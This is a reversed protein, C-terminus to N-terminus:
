MGACSVIKGITESSHKASTPEMDGVRANPALIPVDAQVGGNEVDTHHTGDSLPWSAAKGTTARFCVTSINLKLSVASVSKPCSVAPSM